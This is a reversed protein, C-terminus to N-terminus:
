NSHKWRSWGFVAIQLGGLVAILFGVWEPGASGGLALGLGCLIQVVCVGVFVRFRKDTM